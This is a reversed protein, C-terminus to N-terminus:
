RLGAAGDAFLPQASQSPSRPLTVEFVVQGGDTNTVKLTGGHALAIQQSIFLGLGLGSSGGSKRRSNEKFPDFLTALLAPAVAGANIVRCTVHASAAGDIAVTVGTGPKRHQAANAILNALLQALREEDWHGATNGSVDVRV